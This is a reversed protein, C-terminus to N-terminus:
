KFLHQFLLKGRQRIGKGSIAVAMSVYERLIRIYGFECKQIRIPLLLKKKKKGRFLVVKVAVAVETAAMGQKHGSDAEGEEV